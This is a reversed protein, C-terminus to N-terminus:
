MMFPFFVGILEASWFFMLLSGAILFPGLPIESKRGLDGFILRLKRNKSFKGALILLGMILAALWFSVAIAPLFLRFGLLIGLGVMLKADGLGMLRGGSFLWILFFPLASLIGALLEMFYFQGFLSGFLFHIVSLRLIAFLALSSVTWDPIIKHRLDYVFIIILLSGIITLSIFDAVALPVVAIKEAHFFAFVFFLGTAIEVLPYQPSLRSKCSRCRGRLRFFSFVPVLDKNEIQKGCSLCISRKHRKGGIGERLIVVNLFSGVIIGIFFIPLSLILM